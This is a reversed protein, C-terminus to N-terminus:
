YIEFETQAIKIAKKENDKDFWFEIKYKGLIPYALGSENGWGSSFYEIESSSDIERDYTYYFSKGTRTYFCCNNGMVKDESVETTNKSIPYIYKIYLKGYLKKQIKAMNNTFKTSVSIYRAESSKFPGSANIVTNNKTDNTIKIEADSYELPNEEAKEILAAKNTQEQLDKITSKLETIQSNLESIQNNLETVQNNLQLNEDELEKVRKNDCSFLLGALILILCFKIQHKM